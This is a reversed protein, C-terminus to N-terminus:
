EDPLAKLDDRPDSGRQHEIQFSISVFIHGFVAANKQDGVVLAIKIRDQDGHMKRARHTKQGFAFQEFIRIEAPKDPHQVRKRDSLALSIDSGDLFDDAPEAFSMGSFM